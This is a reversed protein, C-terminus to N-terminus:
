IGGRQFPNRTLILSVPGHPRGTDAFQSETKYKVAGSEGSGGKQVYALYEPAGPMDVNDALALSGNHFLKLEECLRLDPLYCEEWHDIFVVDLEGQKVKGEEVLRKLSDAGAGVLVSVIDDLGALSIMDKAVAAMKPDFEFTYVRADAGHYSKLAAGWAIASTGVFTGFELLLKPKPEMEALAKQALDLKPGRFLM